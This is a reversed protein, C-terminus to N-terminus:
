SETEVLLTEHPQSYAASVSSVSEPPLSTVFQTISNVWGLKISTEEAGIPEDFTTAIGSLPEWLIRTLFILYAFCFTKGM